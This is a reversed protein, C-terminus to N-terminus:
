ILSLYVEVGGVEEGAGGVQVQGVDHGVIQVREYGDPFFLADEVLGDGFVPCEDELVIGVVFHTGGLFLVVAVGEAGEGSM